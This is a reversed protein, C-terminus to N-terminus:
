LDFAEDSNMLEDFERTNSFQINKGGMKSNLKNCAGIFGDYDGTDCARSIETFGEYFAQKYFNLRDDFYKELEERCQRIFKIHEQCEREIRIRNEKSLKADKLSSVLCGYCASSLAYGLASGIVAGVIPIPIVVQGVTASMSAVVMSFGSQGMQELCEAGDITGNLYAHLSKGAELTMNVMAAPLNTKSLNRLVDKGSNQMTGKLASGFFGVAYGGAAAKGTTKAIDCVADKGDINGRYYECINKIVAVSGGIVAANKAQELGARNSLKVVDAATSLFPHERAFVADDKSIGSDKVRSKLKKLKDIQESKQKVVDDQCKGSDIQKQLKDIRKDLESQIKPVGNEDTQFYDSPLTFDAGNDFYKQYDGSMLKDVCSKVDNGVFKMQMMSVIKGDKTEYHDFLEDYGGSNKLDTAVIRRKDGNIRYEANKRAQYKLEASFGSQQKLNQEAYEPNIKHEGIDRLGKKLDMAHNEADTGTYVYLHEKVADGYRGVPDNAAGLIAGDLLSEFRSKKMNEPFHNKKTM